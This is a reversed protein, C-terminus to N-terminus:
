FALETFVREIDGKWANEYRDLLDDAPTRGSVVIEMLSDLFHVEDLSGDYERRLRLGECSIALMKQAVDQVTGDRFPAKLGMSPVDDKMKVQENWTWDKVLDWAADLATQEYFLGTWLAPLACIRRWSAGDAGRVEMYRKIRVDPFLTTLHDEWDTVTPIEGPLAPLKGELFDRFSMGSADIYQSDRMVFYMPVDLAYDVYREFGFGDETAFRLLGSRDNDVDTWVHARKSVYGNPKGETFPSNAFLATAVSQLAQAVRFKQVMDAESGFDLNAQITCTRIMMDLGMTGVRPMYERMIKYRGKPMWPVDERTDRPRFGLGLFIIGLEEAIEKCQDLHANVERCTEHLTRLPAGSLEVQGGPELSVHQGDKRLGIVNEGENMPEWGFRQLEELIARIGNQADYTLPAFTTADYAFKEHETGILWTQKPKCGTELREILQAKSTIPTTNQTSPISM